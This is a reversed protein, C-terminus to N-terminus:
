WGGASGYNFSTRLTMPNAFGQPAYPGGSYERLLKSSDFPSAYCIYPSPGGAGCIVDAFYYRGDAPNEVSLGDMSLDGVQARRWNAGITGGSAQFLRRTALIIFDWREPTGSRHALSWARPYAARVQNLITSIEGTSLHRRPISAITFAVENSVASGCPSLAVVRAFFTGTM